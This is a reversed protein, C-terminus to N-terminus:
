DKGIKQNLRKYHNYVAVALVRKADDQGIVYQDLHKKIDIPKVLTLENQSKKSRQQSTEETLIQYGQALCRDCIHGDIGAIMLMVDQKSAGCFSCQVDNKSKAM